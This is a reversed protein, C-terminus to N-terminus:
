ARIGTLEVYCDYIDEAPMKVLRASSVTTLWNKSEWVLKFRDKYEKVTFFDIIDHANQFATNGGSEHTREHISFKRRGKLYDHVFKPDFKDSDRQESTDALIPQFTIRYELRAVPSLTIIKQPDYSAGNSDLKEITIAM